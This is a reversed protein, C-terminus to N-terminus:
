AFSAVSLSGSGPVAPSFQDIAPVGVPHPDGVVHAILPGTPLWTSVQPPDPNVSAASAVAVTCTTDPVVNAEHPCTSFVAVSLEDFSPGGTWAFSEAVTFQGFRDIVLVASLALTSAPSGIPNVTVSVLLPSPVANLAPILSASGVPGPM